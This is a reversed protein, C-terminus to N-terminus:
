MHDVALPVECVVDGGVTAGEGHSQQLIYVTCTYMYLQLVRWGVM